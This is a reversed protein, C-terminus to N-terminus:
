RGVTGVSCNNFYIFQEISQNLIMHICFILVLFSEDDKM